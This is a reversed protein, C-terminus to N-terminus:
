RVPVPLDWPRRCPASRMPFDLSELRHHVSTPLRVPGNYRPLRRVFGLSRGLLHHLSPIQGLPVRDLAVRESCLTPAVRAASEFSYTFRCSRVPFPPEGREEVVDIVDVSEAVRVQGELPVRACTD